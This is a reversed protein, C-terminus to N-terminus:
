QLDRNKEGDIRQAANRIFKARRERQRSESRREAKDQLFIKRSQNPGVPARVAGRIAQQPTKL